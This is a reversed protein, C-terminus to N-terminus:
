QLMNVCYVVQFAISYRLETPLAHINSLMWRVIAITNFHYLCKFLFIDRNLVLILIIM